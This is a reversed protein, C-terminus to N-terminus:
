EDKHSKFEVKEYYESCKVILKLNRVITKKKNFNKVIFVDITVAWPFKFIM